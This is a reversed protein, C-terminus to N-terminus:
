ELDYSDLSLFDFVGFLKTNLNSKWLNSPFQCLSYQTGKWSRQIEGGEEDLPTEFPDPKWSLPLVVGECPKFVYCM